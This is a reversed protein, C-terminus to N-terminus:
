FLLKLLIFRNWKRCWTIISLEDRSTQCISSSNAGFKIGRWISFYYVKLNMDVTCILDQWGHGISTLTYCICFTHLSILEQESKVVMNLILPVQAVNISIAQAMFHKLKSLYKISCILIVNMIVKFINTFHYSKLHQKGKLIFFM